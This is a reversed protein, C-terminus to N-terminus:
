PKATQSFMDEAKLAGSFIRKKRLVINLEADVESLCCIDQEILIANYSEM